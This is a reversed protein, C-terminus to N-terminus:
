WSKLITYNLVKLISYGPSWLSYFGVLMERQNILQWQRGECDESEKWWVTKYRQLRFYHYTVVAGPKDVCLLSKTSKLKTKEVKDNVLWKFLCVNAKICSELAGLYLQTTIIVKSPFAAVCILSWDTNKMRLQPKKSPAYPIMTLM